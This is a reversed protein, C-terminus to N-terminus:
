SVRGPHRRVFSELKQPLQAVGYERDWATAAEALIRQQLDPPLSTWSALVASGLRRVLCEDESPYRFAPKMKYSGLPKPAAKMTENM